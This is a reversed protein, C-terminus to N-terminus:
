SGEVHRPPLIGDDREVHRKIKRGFRQCRMERGVIHRGVVALVFPGYCGGHVVGYGLGSGDDQSAVDHLGRCALGSFQQKFQGHGVFACREAVVFENGHGVALRLDDGLVVEHVVVFEVGVAVENILYIREGQIGAAVERLHAIDGVLSLRNREVDANGSYIAVDVAVADHAAHVEGDDDVDEGPESVGLVIVVQGVHVAVAADGGGINSGDDVDEGSQLRHHTPM